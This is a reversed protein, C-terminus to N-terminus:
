FIFLYIFRMREGLVFKLFCVFCNEVVKIDLKVTIIFISYKWQEHIQKASSKLTLLCFSGIYHLNLYYHFLDFPCISESFPKIDKLFYANMKLIWIVTIVYYIFVFINVAGKIKSQFRIRFKKLILLNHHLILISSNVASHSSGCYILIRSM